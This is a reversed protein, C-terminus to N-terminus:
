SDVYRDMGHGFRIREKPSADSTQRAPAHEQAWDKLAQNLKMTLELAEQQKKLLTDIDGSIPVNIEASPAPRGGLGDGYPKAPSSTTTM